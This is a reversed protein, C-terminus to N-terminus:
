KRLSEGTLEIVNFMERMRDRVRNGYNEGIQDATLNTTIHTFHWGTKRNDYRNLIIEEMVNVENGFNKKVSETGLDDYCYGLSDQLFFNYNNTALPMDNSYVELIEHASYDKNGKADAFQGAIDRCSIVKYCQRKNKSFMNMLTTKGTGINGMLCIGKNLSWGKGMQEFEVDNAFYYCLAKFIPKAVESFQPKGGNLIENVLRNLVYEQLDKPTFPTKISEIMLDYKLSKEEQENKHFTRKKAEDILADLISQDLVVDDYYKKRKESNESPPIIESITQGIIKEM